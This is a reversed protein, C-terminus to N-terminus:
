DCLWRVKDAISGRETLRIVKLIKRLFWGRPMILFAKRAVKQDRKDIEAQRSSASAKSLEVAFKWAGDRALEMSFDIIRDDAKRTFRLLVGLMPWIETLDRQVQGVLRSLISNIKNFDGHLDEIDHGESIEAAVIGLDLNIHANMGLMLQQLVILRNNNSELFAVEWAKTPKQGSQFTDYADIYRKAFVVDFQEMRQGNEFYGDAIGKKVTVTVKRYLAAFYGLTSSATESEAIIEDLRAIVQDITTISATNM